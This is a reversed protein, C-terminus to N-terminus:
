LIGSSKQGFWPRPGNLRALKPTTRKLKKIKFNTKDSFFYLKTHLLNYKHKIELFVLFKKHVMKLFVLFEKHVMKKLAPYKLIIRTVMRRHRRLDRIKKQGM